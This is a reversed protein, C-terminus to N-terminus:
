VYSCVNMNKVKSLRKMGLDRKLTDAHPLGNPELIQRQEGGDVHLFGLGAQVGLVVGDEQGLVILVLGFVDKSAHVGEGKVVRGVVGVSRGLGAEADPVEMEGPGASLLGAVLADLTLAAGTRVGAFHRLLSDQATVEQSSIAGSSVRAAKSM